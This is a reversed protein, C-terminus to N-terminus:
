NGLPQSPQLTTDSCPPWRCAQSSCVCGFLGQPRTLVPSSQGYDVRPHYCAFKMRYGDEDQLGRELVRRQRPCKGSTLSGSSHAPGLWAM